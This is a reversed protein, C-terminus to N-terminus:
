LRPELHTGGSRLNDPKAGHVCHYTFLHRKREYKHRSTQKSNEKTLIYIYM